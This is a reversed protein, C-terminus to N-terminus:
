YASWTTGKEDTHTCNIYAWGYESHSTDDIYGWGGSDDADTLNTATASNPHHELGNASPIEKIYKADVALDSLNAPYNFHDAYHINLASRIAGLNGRMAGEKSRQIASAIKPVAISALIGIIAVVIMLEMLTFGKEDITKKFGLETM